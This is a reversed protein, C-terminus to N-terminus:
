SELWHARAGKADVDVIDTAGAGFVVDMTARFDDVLDLPVYAQITGGFGGGHVRAAGRARLFQEAIAIAVMSPQEDAGGVSVNQLCMASSHGSLRTLRLFTEMDREELAQARGQVLQM